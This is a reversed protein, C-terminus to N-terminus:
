IPHEVRWMPAVGIKYGQAQAGACWSLLGQEGLPVVDRALDARFALCSGVSSVQCVSNLMMPWRLSRHYPPFPSFRQGDMGRFGWTDYMHPGAFVLPAIVDMGHERRQALDVVSGVQHPEWILDSEVYLVMEDRGYTPDVAGMGARMVGTLAALRDADETSHFVRGGHNHTVIQLVDGLCDLKMREGYKRRYHLLLDRTADTSDGEVAIVRVRLKSSGHKALAEVQHFYRPINHASNRWASIICLNM